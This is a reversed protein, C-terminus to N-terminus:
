CRRFFIRGNIICDIITIKFDIFTGKPKSIINDKIKVKDLGVFIMLSDIKLSDLEKIKGEPGFDWANVVIGITTDFAGDTQNYIEYSKELVKRFHNDVAFAENRNLKSIDSDPIYTSMSQNVVAFLSDFQKQYNEGSNAYYLISYTTGFINGTIKTNEIPKSCSFVILAIVLFLFNKM